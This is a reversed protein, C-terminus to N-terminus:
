TVSHLFNGTREAFLGHEYGGSLEAATQVNWIEIARGRGERKPVPCSRAQQVLLLWRLAACVESESSGVAAPWLHGLARPKKVLM